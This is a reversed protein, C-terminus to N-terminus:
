CSRRHAVNGKADARTPVTASWRSARLRVGLVSLGPRRGTLWRAPARDRAPLLPVGRWSDSASSRCRPSSCACRHRRAGPQPAAAAACGPGYM